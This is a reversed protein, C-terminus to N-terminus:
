QANGIYRYVRGYGSYRSESLNCVRISNNWKASYPVNDDGGAAEVVQGGGIYLM